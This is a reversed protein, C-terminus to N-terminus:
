RYKLRRDRVELDVVELDVAFQHREPVAREVIRLGVDHDGGGPDLRHQAVGRDRHVGVVFAIAVQDAGGQRVGEDVPLEDDDGVLMDVGFETGACDFDRGGVVRVVELDPQPM